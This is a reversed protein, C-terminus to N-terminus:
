SLPAMGFAGIEGCIGGNKGAESSSAMSLLTPTIQMYM